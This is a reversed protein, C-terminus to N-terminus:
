DNLPERELTALSFGCYHSDGSLLRSYCEASGAETLSNAVQCKNFFHFIAPVSQCSCKSGLFVASLPSLIQTRKVGKKEIWKKFHPSGESSVTHNLFKKCVREGREEDLLMSYNKKVDKMKLIQLYVPNNNLSLSCKMAMMNHLPLGFIAISSGRQREQGQSRGVLSFQM